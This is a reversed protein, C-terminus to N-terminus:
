HQLCAPHKADHVDNEEENGEYTSLTSCCKLVHWVLAAQILKNKKPNGTMMIVMIARASNVARVGSTAVM